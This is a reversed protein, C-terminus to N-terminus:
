QCLLSAVMASQTALLEIMRGSACSVHGPLCNDLVVHDLCGYNGLGAAGARSSASMLSTVFLSSIPTMHCCSSGCSINRRVKAPNYGVKKIYSSVEKVIEDYRKQSYKPETADMKNLSVIMQPFSVFHRCEDTTSSRQETCAKAAHKPHM